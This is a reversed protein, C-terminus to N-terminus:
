GCGAAIVCLVRRAQAVLEVANGPRKPLSYESSYATQLAAAVGQNRHPAGEPMIACDCLQKAFKAKACFEQGFPM